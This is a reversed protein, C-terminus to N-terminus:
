ARGQVCKGANNGVVLVFYQLPKRYDGDNKREGYQHGTNVPHVHWYRIRIRRICKINRYEKGKDKRQYNAPQEQSFFDISIFVKLILTYPIKFSSCSLIRTVSSFIRPISTVFNGPPPSSNPSPGLSQIMLSNLSSSLRSISTTA